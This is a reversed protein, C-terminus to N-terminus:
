ENTEDKHKLKKGTVPDIFSAAAMKKAYKGAKGGFLRSADHVASWDGVPNVEIGAAEFRRILIDYGRIRVQIPGRFFGSRVVAGETGETFGMDALRKGVEKGLAVRIVTFSAGNPADSLLM